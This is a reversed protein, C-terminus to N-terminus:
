NEWSALISEIFGESGEKASIRYLNGSGVFWVVDLMMGGDRSTFALAPVGGNKSVTIQKPNEIDMDPIDKHIREPTIPGPEDFSSVFIQLEKGDPERILVTEGDGEPFSTVKFDQPYQFSFGYTADTYKQVGAQGSGPQPTQGAGQNTIGLEKNEGAGGGLGFLNRFGFPASGGAVGGARSQLYWVGGGALLLVAVVVTIIRLHKM